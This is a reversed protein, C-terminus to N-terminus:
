SFQAGQCCLGFLLEQSSCYVLISASNAKFSRFHVYLLAYIDRSYDYSGLVRRNIQSVLASAYTGDLGYLAVPPKSDPTGAPTAYTRFAPMAVARPTIAARSASARTARLFARSPLMNANRLQSNHPPPSFKIAVTLSAKDDSAAARSNIAKRAKASLETRWAYM